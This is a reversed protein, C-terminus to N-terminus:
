RMARGLLSGALALDEAMASVVRPGSRLGAAPHFTPLVPVPALPTSQLVGRLATIGDLTGVVARTAVNGLTVIVTPSVAEIQGSLFTSCAEIEDPKPDRNEPPRCKVINAVFVQERALGLVDRLLQDLLEGSRGVFPIGTLDENAGPGEGVIFLSAHPDGSGFVVSTRTECLRCATCRAAEEALLGLNRTM